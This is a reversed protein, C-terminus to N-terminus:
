KIVGVDFQHLREMCSHDNELREPTDNIVSEYLEIVTSRSIQCLEEYTVNPVM